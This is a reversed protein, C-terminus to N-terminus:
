DNKGRRNIPTKDYVSAGHNWVWLLKGGLFASKEFEAMNQLTTYMDCKDARAACFDKTSQPAAKALSALLTLALSASVGILIAKTTNM